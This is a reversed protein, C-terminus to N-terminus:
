VARLRGPGTSPRAPRAPSCSCFPEPKGCAVCLIPGGGGGVPRGCVHCDRPLGCRPCIEVDWPVLTYCQRCHIPERPSRGLSRHPAPAARRHRERMENEVPNGFIGSVTTIRPDPAVGGLLVIAVGVPMSFLGLEAVFTLSWAGGLAIPSVLLALGLLLVVVGLGLISRNM